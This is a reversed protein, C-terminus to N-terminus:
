LAGWAAKSTGEGECPPARCRRGDAVSAIPPFEKERHFASAFPCCFYADVEEIFPQLHIFSDENDIAVLRSRSGDEVNLISTHRHDHQVLTESLGFDSGQSM